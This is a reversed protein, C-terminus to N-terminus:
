ASNKPGAHVTFVLPWEDRVRHIKQAPNFLGIMWGGPGKLVTLLETLSGEYLRIDTDKLWDDSFSVTYSGLRDALVQDAEELFDLFAPPGGRGSLFENFEQNIKLAFPLGKDNQTYVLIVTNLGRLDALQQLGDTMDWMHQERPPIGLCLKYEYPEALSSLDSLVAKAASDEATFSLAVLLGM